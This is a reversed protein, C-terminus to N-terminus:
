GGVQDQSEEKSGGTKCKNCLTGCDIWYIDHRLDRLNRRPIVFLFSFFSLFFCLEKAERHSSFEEKGERIKDLFYPFAGWVSNCQWGHRRSEALCM